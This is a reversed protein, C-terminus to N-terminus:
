LEGNEEKLADIEAHSELVQQLADEAAVLAKKLEEQWMVSDQQAQLRVQELEAQCRQTERMSEEAATLTRDLEAM